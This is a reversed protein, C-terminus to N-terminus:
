FGSKPNRVEEMAIIVLNSEESPNADGVFGMYGNEVQAMAVPTSDKLITWALPHEDSMANEDHEQKRKIIHQLRYWAADGVNTLHVAKAFHTAPLLDIIEKPLFDSNLNSQCLGFSDYEWALGARSFFTRFHEERLRCSFDGMCIATGGNRMYRIVAGWVTSYRPTALADDTIIVAKPNEGLARMAPIPKNTQELSAVHLVRSVLSRYKRYFGPHPNLSIFLIRSNSDTSM